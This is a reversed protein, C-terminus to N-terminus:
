SSHSAQEHVGMSHIQEIAVRFLRSLEKTDTAKCLVDALDNRGMPIVLRLGEVAANYRDVHLYAVAVAAVVDTPLPLTRAQDWASRHLVAMGTGGLGSSELLTSNGALEHAVAVLLGAERARREDHQLRQAHAFSERALARASRTALYQAVVAVILASILGLLFLVGASTPDMLTLRAAKGIGPARAPVHSEARWPEGCWPEEAMGWCASRRVSRETEILPRAFWQVWPLCVRRRTAQLGLAFPFDHFAVRAWCALCRCRLHSSSGGPIRRGDNRLRRDTRPPALRM